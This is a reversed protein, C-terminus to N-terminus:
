IIMGGVHRLIPECGVPDKIHQSTGRWQQRIARNIQRGLEGPIDMNKRIIFAEEFGTANSQSILGIALFASHFGSGDNATFMVEMGARFLNLTDRVRQNTPLGFDSRFGSGMPGQGLRANSKSVICFIRLLIVAFSMRDTRAM